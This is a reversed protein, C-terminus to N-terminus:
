QEAMVEWHDRRTKEAAESLVLVSGLNQNARSCVRDSDCPAPTRVVGHRLAPVFSPAHMCVRAMWNDSGENFVRDNASAARPVKPIAPFIKHEQGGRTGLRVPIISVSVSWTIM